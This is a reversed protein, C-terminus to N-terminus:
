QFATHIEQETAAHSVVLLKDGPQLRMEPTPVTPRGDQIVTGAPLSIEALVRGAARSRPTITTEIVDVGAKSLRLLAVTDTAGTAEEILSIM